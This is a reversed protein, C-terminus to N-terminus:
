SGREQDRITEVFTRAQRLARGAEARSVLERSYDATQRLEYRNALTGRLATPYRKRRTILLGDFQSPVFAHSWHGGTPQISARELAAIAAQFCGYYCRNARNNYRGNLFESEAGALSEIAKLLFPADDNQM